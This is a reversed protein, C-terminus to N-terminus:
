ARLLRWGLLGGVASAATLWLWTGVLGLIGAQKMWEFGYDDLWTRLLLSVLVAVAVLLVMSSKSAPGQVMSTIAGLLCPCVIGLLLGLVLAPLRVDEHHLHRLSDLLDWFGLYGLAYSSLALLGRVIRM